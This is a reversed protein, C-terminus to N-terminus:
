MCPYALLLAAYRYQVYMNATTVCVHIVTRYVNRSTMKRIWQLLYRYTYVHVNNDGIYESRYM